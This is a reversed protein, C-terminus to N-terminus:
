GEGAADVLGRGLLGEGDGVGGVFDVEEEFVGVPAGDVAEKVLAIIAVVDDTGVARGLHDGGGVGDGFGIGVGDVDGDGGVVMVALGAAGLKGNAIRVIACGRRCGVGGRVM